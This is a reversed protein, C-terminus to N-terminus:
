PRGGPAPLDAPKGYFFGQALEFGLQLCAEHEGATEIGEALVRIGLSRAMEVLSRVLHQQSATARDLGRIMSMDFKLYDPPVMAIEQLRAQGTGFDDYALRMNLGRLTARIQLLQSPSTAASEHIEVTIQQAPATARLTALSTALFSGGLEKPHTNVFLHPAGAAQSQKVAELRFMDSLHPEMDLRAALDFMIKPSTLGFLKSRGLAEYGIVELTAIDVIPQYKPAVNRESILREFQTLMLADDCADVAQTAVNTTRDKTAVRFALMAIQLLDGDHLELEAKVQEGNVYTGNTSGLDRVWLSEGRQLLEAHVKSVSPCHIRLSVAERRGITFLDSAIPVAQAPEGDAVKGILCWKM